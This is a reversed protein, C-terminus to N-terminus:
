SSTSAKRTSREFNESSRPRAIAVIIAALAVMRLIFPLHRAWAVLRGKGNDWQAAESVTLAPEKGKLSRWLYLAILPILLLDLWLLHPYEFFM